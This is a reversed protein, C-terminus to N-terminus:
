KVRRGLFVRKAFRIIDFGLAIPLGVLPIYWMGVTRMVASLAFHAEMWTSECELEARLSTAAITYPSLDLYVADIYNILKRREKSHWTEVWPKTGQSHIFMPLGKIINVVREYVTYGDPGLYQLIEKGRKMIRLPVRAYQISSLLATLADQDGMMHIPRDEWVQQQVKRYETSELMARWQQLLRYHLRTVRLVGTNLTFPLIRGIEFGWLGARLANLENRYGSLAEEAVVIVRPDLERIMPTFDRVIIIDSDIWIIEDFGRDMLYLLAQPKVNWGQAGLLPATHIYVQPYRAIRSRFGAQALPYFVNIPVKSCCRNLSLILLELAPEWYERDEAICIVM